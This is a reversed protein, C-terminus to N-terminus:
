KTKFIKSVVKTVIKPTWSIERGGVARIDSFEKQRKAHGVMWSDKMKKIKNRM